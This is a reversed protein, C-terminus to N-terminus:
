EGICYLHKNSRVFIKGDSIAPTGGFSESDSTMRNAALQNLEVGAEFVYMIGSGTLYYVKGDAAVPSPYDSGGGGGRGGRGGGFGGGFGGRGGDFGGRGGDRGGRPDGGREGRGPESGGEPATMRGKFVEEGNTADLCTVIGSAFHYIRDKYVVPSAFGGRESKRWQVGEKSIDNKGGAKVAVSGGGGRRGEIAYIMDKNVVLSTNFSDSEVAECYWTLKGSSPNLAWIEYPAGIVIEKQGNSDVMAPTGWVEGFYDSDARWLEKGTKKDLGVIARAEPGATVVLVNEHLIPSSASGWRKPDSDTGLSKAWQKEGELDYAIVGTKGFFVYVFEGDSTPTHSAYGHAPIGMGGYQDERVDNPVDKKWILDGSKADYCILHRTLKDMSGIDNRSVGYGSYCTVFVKNGVVIPSSVGAGPLEVKWQIGESPSWNTPASGEAVGSGNPGRFRTWDAQCQSATWQMSFLVLSLGWFRISKM